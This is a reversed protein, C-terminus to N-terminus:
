KSENKEVQIKKDSNTEDKNNKKKKDKKISKM